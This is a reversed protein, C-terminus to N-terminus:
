PPPHQDYRRRYEWVAEALTKSSSAQAMFNDHQYRGDQILFDIPHMHAFRHKTVAFGFGVASLLIFLVQIFINTRYSTKAEEDHVVRALLFLIAGTLSAAFPLVAHTLSIFPFPAQGGTLASLSSFYIIM